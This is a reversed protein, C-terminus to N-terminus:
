KAAVTDFSQYNNIGHYNQINILNKNIATMSSLNKYNMLSNSNNFYRDSTLAIPREIRGKRIKRKSSHRRQSSKTKTKSNKKGSTDLCGSKKKKKRNISGHKNIKTLHNMLTILLQKNQQRLNKNQIVLEEDNNQEYEDLKAKYYEIQDLYGEFGNKSQEYAISIKRIIDEKGYLIQKLRVVEEEKMHLNREVKSVRQNIVKETETYAEYMEDYKAKMALLEKNQLDWKNQFSTLTRKLEEVERRGQDYIAKHEEYVKNKSEVIGLISKLENIEQQAM